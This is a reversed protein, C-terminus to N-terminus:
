KGTTSVREAARKARRRYYEATRSDDHREAHLALHTLAEEHHPDLYTTKRFLEEARDEDGASECLIGMLYNAQASDSNEQLLSECVEIAKDHQGQNALEQALSLRDEAPEAGDAQGGIVQRHHPRKAKDQRPVASKQFKPASQPRGVSSKDQKGRVDRKRSYSSPLVGRSYAFAGRRPLPVLNGEWFQGMEAHGVFLLGDKALLEELNHIARQQTARDFYILLNRCFIVHYPERSPLTHPALINGRHFHVMDKIHDMLAYRGGQHEFYQDRFALRKGRFSNPGYVAQRAIELSRGSIDVADIHVYETSLGTEYLVIAISYAEEGTSCPLSLARLVGPEDHALWNNKVYDSLTAFPEHDRFFWTEPIVVEEIFATMETGSRTLLDIYAQLDPVDCSEMRRRLVRDLTSQGITSADMGVHEQLINEITKETVPCHDEKM